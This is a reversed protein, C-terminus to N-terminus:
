VLRSSQSIGTSYSDPPFDTHVSFEHRLFIRVSTTMNIYDNVYTTVFVDDHKAAWAWKIVNGLITEYYNINILLSGIEKSM